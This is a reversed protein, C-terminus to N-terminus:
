AAETNEADAFQISVAWPEGDRLHIKAHLVGTRPKYDARVSDLLDLFAMADFSTDQNREM